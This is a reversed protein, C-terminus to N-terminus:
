FIYKAELIELILLSCLEVKRMLASIWFFDFQILLIRNKSIENESLETM